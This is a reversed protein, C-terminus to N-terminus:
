TARFSSALLGRDFPAPAEGSAAFLYVAVRYIQGLTASAVAVIAIWIIGVVFLPILLELRNSIAGLAILAVGPLIALFTVLGLGVNGAIQAGWTQRVLAASRKIAAFPDIGEAVMVPVVLFTAVSWTTGILGRVFDGLAGRRELQALLTGVVANIVAFLFILPLNKVAVAFGDGIAGEQGRFRRLVVAALGVNFFLAIFSTVLYFAFLLFIAPFNEASEFRGGTAATVWIAPLIFALSALLTLAGGLVPFIVLAPERTLVSWSARALSWSRTLGGM